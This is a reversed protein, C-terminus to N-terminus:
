HDSCFDFVLALRCPSFLPFDVDLPIHSARLIDKATSIVQRKQSSSATSVNTRNRVLACRVLASLAADM